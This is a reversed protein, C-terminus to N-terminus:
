ITSRRRALISGLDLSEPGFALGVNVVGLHTRCEPYEIVSQWATDTRGRTGRGATAIPPPMSSM